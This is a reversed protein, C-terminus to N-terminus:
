LNFSDLERVALMLQLYKEGSCTVWSTDMLGGSCVKGVDFLGKSLVQRCTKDGNCFM